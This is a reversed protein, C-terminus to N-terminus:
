WEVSTGYGDAVLPQVVCMQLWLVLPCGGATVVGQYGWFKMKCFVFYTGM